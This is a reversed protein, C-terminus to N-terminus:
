NYDIKLLCDNSNELWQKIETNEVFYLLKQQLVNTITHFVTKSAHYLCLKLEILNQISFIKLGFHYFHYRSGPNFTYIKKPGSWIFWVVLM